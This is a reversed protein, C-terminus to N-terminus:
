GSKKEMRKPEFSGWGMGAQSKPSDNRGECIGVQRGAREVLNGIDEKTFVDADYEVTLEAEWGPEWMPRARIDPAGNDNRACRVDMHPEGKTIRVLPTSDAKDYGDAKVIIALKAQTMVFGAVKCASILAKRLGSAAIGHWGGDKGGAIHMSDRYCAELNKPDRNKRRKRKEADGMIQDDLLQKRAKEGFAHVVLPSTGIITFRTLQFNLPKIRLTEVPGPVQRLAGPVNPPMEEKTHKAM